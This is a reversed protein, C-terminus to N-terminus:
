KVGRRKLENQVDHLESMHYLYWPGHWAKDLIILQELEEKYELLEKKTRKNLPKYDEVIWDGERRITM